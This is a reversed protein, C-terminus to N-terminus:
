RPDEWEALAVRGADTVWGTGTLWGADQAEMFSERSTSGPRQALIRDPNVRGGAQDGLSVLLLAMERAEEDTEQESAM